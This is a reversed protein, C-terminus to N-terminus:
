VKEKGTGTKVQQRLENLARHQVVRVAGATMGVAEATDEASLGVVVRLLLIERQAEPLVQVLEAMRVAPVGGGRVEGVKKLAVGYVFALLSGRRGRGALVASCVDRAVGDAVAFSGGRRGIRARCYRVVFPWLAEVDVGRGAVVSQGACDGGGQDVDTGM